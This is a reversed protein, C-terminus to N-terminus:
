PKELVVYRHLEVYERENGSMNGKWEKSDFTKKEVEKFNLQKKLYEDNVLYEPHKIGIKDVFVDIKQGYPKFTKETFIRDIEAVKNNTKSKFILTNKNKLKEFVEKGDYSTYM